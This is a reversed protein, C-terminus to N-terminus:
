LTSFKYDMRCCLRPHEIAVGADTLARASTFGIIHYQDKYDTMSPEYTIWSLNNAETSGGVLNNPNPVVNAINTSNMKINGTKADMYPQLRHLKRHGGPLQYRWSFSANGPLNLSAITKMNYSMNWKAVVDFFLDNLIVNSKNVGVSYHVDEQLRSTDLSGNTRILHEVSTVNLNNAGVFNSPHTYNKMADKIKVIFLYTYVPYNISASAGMPTPQIASPDWFFNYTIMDLYGTKTQTWDFDLSKWIPKLNSETNSSGTWDMIGRILQGDYNDKLSGSGAATSINFPM